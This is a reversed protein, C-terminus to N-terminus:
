FNMLKNDIGLLSEREYEVKGSREPVVKISIATSDLQRARGCTRNRGSPQYQQMKRLQEQKPRIFTYFNWGFNGYHFDSTEIQFSQKPLSFIAVV